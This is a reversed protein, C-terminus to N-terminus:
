RGGEGGRGWKVDDGRGYTVELGMGAEMSVEGSSAEEGEGRLLEGSVISLSHGDRPCPCMFELAQSSFFILIVLVLSIPSLGGGM